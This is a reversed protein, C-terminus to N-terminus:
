FSFFDFDLYRLFKQDSVIHRYTYVHEPPLLHIFNIDNLMLYQLKFKQILILQVLCDEYGLSSCVIASYRM